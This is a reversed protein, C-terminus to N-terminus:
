CRQLTLIAWEAYNDQAVLRFGAALYVGRVERAQERLIGSLIAVGRPRLARRMQPALAILPGPLINALILGFSGRRLEPHAFGAATLVRVRSGARNLRVNARATAVAIPDNDSALIRALPLLRAAGLALIATGCGLDLVRTPALGRRVVRDLAVLCGSTTANHGTGFAEGAEIELALRHHAFRARDHSAHVTFRGARIPPLAAQSVAVWNTDPVTELTPAAIGLGALAAAIADLNPAEPYYAEVAFGTGIPKLEFLTVALPAYAEDATLVDSAAEAAALDPALTRLKVLSM